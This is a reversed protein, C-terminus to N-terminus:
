KLRFKYGLTVLISTARSASFYDKKTSPFINGLGFYYRGELSVCHRRMIVFEMGFGGTIGYDFRNSVPLDLQEYRRNAPFQPNTSAHAYDFNSTIKEGLMFSVEPGLNFFFKVVRSGFFIHTMLPLRLYTLRREYKFPLGEYDEKWGSQEVNLEAQLGVHREEAYRFSVGAMMGQIMEQKISPYFSMSSLTVGAQGGVHVHSIYHTQANAVGWVSLFAVLALVRRALILARTM